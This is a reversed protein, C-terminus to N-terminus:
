IKYSAVEGTRNALHAILNLNDQTFKDTPHVTGVTLIGILEDDIRLPAVLASQIEPRKLLNKVEPDTVEEDLLLAQKNRAVLGAIGEGIKMRVDKIIEEDLGKATKVFLEGTEQDLLMISGMEAGMTKLAVDLLVQLLTDINNRPLDMRELSEDIASSAMFSSELTRIGMEFKEHSLRCIYSSVEGLLGVALQIGRFTFTKIERLADTLDEQNIELNRATEECKDLEERKGFIVPGVVIHAAVKSDNYIVPIVFNQPGAPCPFSFSDKGTELGHIPMPRCNRCRKLGLPSSAVVESCFRPLMSPKTLPRGELDLTRLGAGIVESFYDQIQQWRNMDVLETLLLNESCRM